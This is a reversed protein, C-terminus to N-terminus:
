DYSGSAACGRSAAAVRSNAHAIRTRAGGLTGVAHRVSEVRAPPGPRPGRPAPTAITALRWAKGDAAATTHLTLSTPPPEGCGPSPLPEPAAPPRQVLTRCEADPWRVTIEGSPSAALVTEAASGPTPPDGSGVMEVWERLLQDVQARLSTLLARYQLATATAVLFVVDVINTDSDFSMDWVGEAILTRSVVEGARELLFQLLAFEYASLDIRRGAREVRRSRPDCILDGVVYVDAPRRPARRLLARVRAPLEDFAFPKALYDDAGLNLGRVRADVADRATLLLVPMQRGSRRLEAM